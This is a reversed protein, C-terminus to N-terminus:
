SKNKNNKRKRIKKIILFSLILMIIFIILILTLPIKELLNNKVIGFNATTPASGGPYILDLHIIYKGVPLKSVDFVKNVTMREEVFLTDKQTIYIKGSYDKITFSLSVDLKSPDGMPVLEIKTKLTGGQVISYGKNLVVVNADFWLPTSIAHIYVAIKKGGITIEGVIEKKELPSIFIFALEKYEEPEVSVSDKLDILVEKLNESATITLNQQSTGKNYIYIKQPFRPASSTVPNFPLTLNIIDPTILIISNSIAAGSSGGGGGGGGGGGETSPVETEDIICTYSSCSYGTECSGCNIDKGCNDEFVGCEYGMKACSISSCSFFGEVLPDSGITVFHGGGSNISVVDASIFNISFLIFSLSVLLLLITTFSKKIKM